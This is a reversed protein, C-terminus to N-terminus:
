DCVCRVSFGNNKDAYSPSVVTGSSHLHRSYPYGSYCESSSWFAASFGVNDSYGAACSYGGSPLASFGTSNNTTCNNGVTCINNNSLWGSSSALAKAINENDNGCVYQSHNSVYNTLQAWEADSPVHWGDPCIGQVGSPNAASSSSNRMVAKWNYLYGYTSVNTSNNAPYYRYSISSSTDTGLAINTGDAYHTTRLNQAMWCQSGLQVTPYNNGDYDSVSPANPCPQGNYPNAYAFQQTEGYATGVSNTAYARVYYITYPTLGTITSTFNGIGTGDTTYNNDSLTPNPTTGWCVGRATVPSSGTNFITGGCIADTQTVSGVGLTHVVPLYEGGKVCRVSKGFSMGSIGYGVGSMQFGGYNLGRCWINDRYPAWFSAEYGFTTSYTQHRFTGAPLANFGTSNNSSQDNGVACTNTSTDWGSSSALSKAINANDGGCVYVSQGSLYDTLQKWEAESPMHWGNPCVGQIGSPNRNISSFIRVAAMWNYLYGCDPVNSMSNNPCYRYPIQGSATDGMAIDEGDAYHTVRLNQAMWCQTGLQVTPYSNGDYDIIVESDPCPQGDSLTENRLCRVSLGAEPRYSTFEEMSSNYKIRFVYHYYYHPFYERWSWFEGTLAFNATYNYKQGAPMASFGTSNNANPNNGPACTVASTGWGTTSALAKVISVGTSDVCLYQSQRKVYDTLQRWEAESPVHWGSPCIGQVGSPNASSYSNDGMVAKWNYLYGYVSVASQNNNPYYRYAQLTSTDTSSGTGLAIVNGDEYHTTRLNEKMWCQNGIKVTNYINGDYDTMTAAGACPSGDLAKTEFVIQQGYATGVGSTAYARVYYTTSATLGTMQSNFIGLGDGDSTHDNSITPNQTTSWCVGRVMVTDGGDSYVYGGCVASTDSVDIMGNTSVTPMEKTTFSREAGYATGVSNTAYARVYYTTGEQLNTLSSVFAGTGTGDITHDNNVTPNHATSWCVGRAIVNAGGSNVVNGGSMASCNSINTVDQTLVTPPTALTTFLRQQGYSTGAANIAYARVFYTTGPALGTIDSVFSGLGTGDSTHNDSTTPNQSLSWCIGRATVTAGGSSTVDGGCVASSSSVGSVSSTVVVPPATLTTFSKQDGYSVGVSNIAYARVYYTVNPSLIMLNKTFDGEGSGCIAYNNGLTPNESTDYCFGRQSVDSQNDNEVRGSLLVSNTTVESVNNTIVSPVTVDFLLSVTESERQQQIITSSSRETGDIMAYGVYRMEDGFLFPFYSAGKDDKVGELAANKDETMGMYRITNGGGYGENVMKITIHGNHCSASMIYTQPSSLAVTFLHTGVALSSFSEGAVMRGQLDYIELTVGESENMTLAFRCVGDFPNPVNQHLQFGYEGRYDNIGVEGMTLITDPYYLVEEWLQDENMVCVRDLPIRYQGTRDKGTFKVTCLQASVQLVMFISFFIALLKRLFCM